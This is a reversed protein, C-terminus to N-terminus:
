SAGVGAALQPLLEEAAGRVDLIPVRSKRPPEVNLSAVQAGSVDVCRMAYDTIGVSFSTGIFVLVDADNLQKRARWAQYAPHSDYAEDFLLVLPRMPAACVACKPVEGQELRSLDVSSVPRDVGECGGRGACIFRDHRGHIEILQEESHGARRSLGDINQTILLDGPQRRCLAALARHGV